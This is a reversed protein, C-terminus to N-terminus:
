PGTYEETTEQVLPPPNLKAATHDLRLGAPHYAESKGSAKWPKRFYSYYLEVILLNVQNM